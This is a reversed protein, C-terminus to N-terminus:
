IKTSSGKYKLDTIQHISMLKLIGNIKTEAMSTLQHWPFIKWGVGNKSPKLGVWCMVAWGTKQALLGAWSMPGDMGAVCCIYLCKM